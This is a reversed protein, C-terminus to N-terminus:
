WQGNVMSPRSENGTRDVATVAINSLKFKGATAAIVLSRDNRNCITYSWKEYKHYVVWRFVDSENAHTWSIKLSDGQQETKVQPPEPADHDLWSSAPVLANKRYPGLVIAKALNSDKTLSGISWHVEGNSAPLMGRSIMIQNVAETTNAVTTDRGVNMGPWLHRHKKNESSWWGLLVPYSATLSNTRWYLQPTFYDIWGKNLWLRADAYLQNYQDFGEVSSPYGPRWIGFPSLGFKVWPKEAKIDKYLHQIFDNVSKRRWNGRNLKGGHQVYENFSVSDPFDENGNYVPYPYFYDDFHVGDIDYRKVIDMVVSTAHEQTGKKTPDFWWHGDKLKLVLEPKKKVISTDTVPGGVPSHARYPNLWVHLEIGREHAADIWFQLPDYYPDPAKGQVGSLYYSWPEISSQYLADAQPRVQFIVANFHHSQLFDLLEIAERQQEETSLGKKYPWNINDVSAVWAARFEAAAKPMAQDAKDKAHKSSACAFLLIMCFCGTALALLRNVM